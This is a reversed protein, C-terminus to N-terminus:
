HFLFSKYKQKFFDEDKWFYAHHPGQKYVLEFHTAGSFVVKSYATNSFYILGDETGHFMLVSAHIHQYLPEVECLASHHALKEDNAVRLCRPFIFRFAKKDIVYSIGYIKELGPGIASSVLVLKKVRQSDLGAITAAVPGGFSYGTVNYSDKPLFTSAAKLIQKAQDLISTDSHGFHSYGYGPRDIAVLRTHNTISTDSLIRNYTAISGPSGHILLTVPLGSDGVVLVRMSLAGTNIHYVKAPAHDETVIKLEKRDSKRYRKKQIITCSTASFSVMLVFLICFRAVRM